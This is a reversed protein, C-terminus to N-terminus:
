CFSHRPDTLDVPFQLVEMAVLQGSVKTRAIVSVEDAVSLVHEDVRYPSGIIMLKHRMESLGDVEV